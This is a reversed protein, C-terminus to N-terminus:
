KPVFCIFSLTTRCDFNFLLSTESGMAVCSEVTGEYKIPYGKSWADARVETGDNWLFRISDTSNAAVWFHQVNFDLLLYLNLHLM